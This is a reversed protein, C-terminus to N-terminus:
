MRITKIIEFEEKMKDFKELAVKMTLNYKKKLHKAYTKRFTANWVTVFSNTEFTDIPVEIFINKDDFCLSLKSSENGVMLCLCQAYIIQSVVIGFKIIDFLLIVKQEIPDKFDLILIANKKDDAIGWTSECNGEKVIEHMTLISDIKNREDSEVFVVPINRGDAIGSCAITSSAVVRLILDSSNPKIRVRKKM